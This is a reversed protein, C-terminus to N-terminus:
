RKRGPHPSTRTRLRYSSECIEGRPSDHTLVLMEINNQPSNLTISLLRRKTDGKMASFLSFPTFLTVMVLETMQSFLHRRIKVIILMYGCTIICYPTSM